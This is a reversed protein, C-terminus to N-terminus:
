ALLSNCELHRSTDEHYDTRKRVILSNPAQTEALFAGKGGKGEKHGLAVSGKCQGLVPVDNSVRAYAMMSEM